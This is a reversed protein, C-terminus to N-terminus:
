VFQFNFISFQFNSISSQVQFKFGSVQFKFKDRGSFVKCKKQNFGVVVKCKRKLGLIAKCIKAFTLRKKTFFLNKIKKVFIIAIKTNDFLFTFLSQQPAVQWPYIQCVSSYTLEPNSKQLGKQNIYKLDKIGLFVWRYVGISMSQKLYIKM